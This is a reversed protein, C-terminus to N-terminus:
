SILSMIHILKIRTTALMSLFCKNDYMNIRNKFYSYKQIGDINIFLTSLLYKGLKVGTTGTCRMKKVWQELEKSLKEKESLEKKVM